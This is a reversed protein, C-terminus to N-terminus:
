RLVTADPHYSHTSWRALRPVAELQLTSAPVLFLGLQPLAGIGAGLNALGLAILEQTLAIMQVLRWHRASQTVECLFCHCYHANSTVTRAMPEAVPYFPSTLPLGAPIIGVTSLDDKLGFLAVVTAAVVACLMPGVRTLPHTNPEAVAATSLLWAILPRSVLLFLLAIVGFTLATPNLQNLQAAVGMLATAPNTTDEISIGTLGPLQSIIILIAAANVFGNIAPHSLLTVLGGM